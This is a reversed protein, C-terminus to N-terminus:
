RRCARDFGIIEVEHDRELVKSIPCTRAMANSSIDPVLVSIKM